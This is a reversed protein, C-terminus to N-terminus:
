NNEHFFIILQDMYCTVPLLGRSHKSLDASDLEILRELSHKIYCETRLPLVTTFYTSIFLKLVYISITFQDLQGIFVMLTLISLFSVTDFIFTNTVDQSNSPVFVQRSVALSSEEGAM